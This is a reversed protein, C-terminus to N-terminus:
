HKILKSDTTTATTQGAFVYGFQGVAFAILMPVPMLELWGMGIIFFLLTFVFRNVATLYIINVAQEPSNQAVLLAMKYRRQTQWLNFIVILVGYLAAQAAQDGQYWLFFGTVLMAWIALAYFTAKTGM